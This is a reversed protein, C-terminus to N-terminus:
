ANGRLQLLLAAPPGTVRFRVGRGAGGIIVVEGTICLLVTMGNNSHYPDPDPRIRM